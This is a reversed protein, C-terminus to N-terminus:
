ESYGLCYLDGGVIGVEVRNVNDTGKFWFNVANNIVDARTSATIKSGVGATAGAGSVKAIASVRLIPNVLAFPHDATSADNVYVVGNREAYLVVGAEVDDQASFYFLGQDITTFTGAITVTSTPVGNVEPTVSM